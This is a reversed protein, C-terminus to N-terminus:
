QQIQMEPNIKDTFFLHSFIWSTLILCILLGLPIIINDSVYLGILMFVIYSIPWSLTNLTNAEVINKKIESIISSALVSNACDNFGGIFGVAYFVTFNSTIYM